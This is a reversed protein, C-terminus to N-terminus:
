WGVVPAADRVRNVASIVAQLSAQLTSTDIGVGWLSGGDAAAVEVYAAASAESGSTMAHQSYDRVELEIGLGSRVANVLADLPGNGEGVLTEHVGDVLVQAAV